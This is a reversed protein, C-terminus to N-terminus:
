PELKEFFQFRCIIAYGLSRELVLVELSPYAPCQDATKRVRDVEGYFTLYDDNYCHEACTAIRCFPLLSPPLSYSCFTPVM